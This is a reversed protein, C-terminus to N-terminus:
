CILFVDIEDLVSDNPMHRATNLIKDTIVVNSVAYYHDIVSGIGFISLM